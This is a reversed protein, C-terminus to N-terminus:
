RVVFSPRMEEIFLAVGEIEGLFYAQSHQSPAYQPNPTRKIRSKQSQMYLTHYLYESYQKDTSTLLAKEINAESDILTVDQKINKKGM